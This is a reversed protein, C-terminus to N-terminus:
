VIYIKCHTCCWVQSWGSHCGWLYLYLSCRRQLVHCTWVFHSVSRGPPPRELVSVTLFTEEEL